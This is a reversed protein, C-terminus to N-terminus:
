SRSSRQGESIFRDYGVRGRLLLDHRGIPKGYELEVWPTVIIDDIPSEVRKDVRYVNDDYLLDLGATATLGLTKVRNEDDLRNIQVGTTQARLMTPM